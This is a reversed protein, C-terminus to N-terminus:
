TYRKPGQHSLAATPAQALVVAAGGAGALEEVRVQQHSGHGHCQGVMSDALHDQVFFHVDPHLGLLSPEKDLLSEPM